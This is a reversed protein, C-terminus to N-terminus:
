PTDTSVGDSGAVGAPAFADPIWAQFWIATGAPLGPPWLAPLVFEGGGGVPLGSFIITPMPVLTGGLFPLFAPAVGIFLYAVSFPVCNSLRIQIPSGAVLTGDGM